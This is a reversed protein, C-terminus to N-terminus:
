NIGYSFTEAFSRYSEPLRPADTHPRAPSYHERLTVPVNPEPLKYGRLAEFEPLDPYGYDAKGDWKLGCPSDIDNLYQMHWIKWEGGERIFDVCYYGWTWYAAPGKEDIDSYAGMCHWIGKATEGDEAIEVLASGIPKVKFPGIGYIEEETKGGLQEPFRQQILKAKLRNAEFVGSYYASVAEAGDYWGENFGLCVDARTSWFMSFIDQERNLIMCNSYKGMLNKISRRDEWITVLQETTFKTRDM